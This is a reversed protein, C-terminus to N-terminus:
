EFQEWDPCGNTEFTVAEPIDTLFVYSGQDHFTVGGDADLIAWTCGEPQDAPEGQLQFGGLPIEDGIVYTGTGSVVVGTGGTTGSGDSGGSDGSDSGGSGSSAAGPACGALSAALLAVCASRLVRHRVLSSSM